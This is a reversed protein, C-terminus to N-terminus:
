IMVTIKGADAKTLGAIIKLLTTKGAGSPGHIITISGPAFQHKIKLTGAGSYGKLRKEINIDIM